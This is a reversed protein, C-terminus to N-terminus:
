RPAAAVGRLTIRELWCIHCVAEGSSDRRSLHWMAGHVPNLLERRRLRWLFVWTGHGVVLAADDGFVDLAHGTGRLRCGGAGGGPTAARGADRGRRLQRRHIAFGIGHDGLKELLVGLGAVADGLGGEHLFMRRLYVRDGPQDVATRSVRGHYCDENIFRQGQINVFVGKAHSEPITWPCTTFFQEMHIADGGVSLGLNIGTGDDKDGIPDNIKFSEPCYKRRMEENMVFGGTALVVGKRAKVFVPKNDIRFIAGVIKDADKILALARADVIVDVGLDRAKAEL